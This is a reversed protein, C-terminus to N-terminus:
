LDNAAGEVLETTAEQYELHAAMYAGEAARYRALTRVQEDPDTPYNQMGLLELTRWTAERREALKAIKERIMGDGM